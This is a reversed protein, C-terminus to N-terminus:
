NRDAAAHASPGEGARDPAAAGAAPAAPGASRSVWSIGLFTLGIGAWEIGHVSEAFFVAGAALAFIPTLFTFVNLQSLSAFKLLFFWLAYSASTGLISLVLWTAIFAPTWRIAQFHETSLSLLALPVSGALFQWGMARLADVRGTLRKMLLNSIAVGVASLLIYALGEIESRSATLAPLAILVIGAFGAALGWYQIKALREGLFGRALGAAILPQTNSIVTALGPAVRGGGHFMGFLGIGTATLGIVLISVWAGADPVAPRRLGEATLVLVIGSLAARLAAFTMPPAYRLGVRILPFCLAWLLMVLVTAAAVSLPIRTAARALSTPQRSM